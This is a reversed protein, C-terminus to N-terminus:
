KKSAHLSLFFFLIITIQCNAGTIEQTDGVNFCSFNEVNTNNHVHNTSYLREERIFIQGTIERANCSRITVEHM